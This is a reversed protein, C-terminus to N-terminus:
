ATGIAHLLREDGGHLRLKGRGARHPDPLDLELVVRFAPLRIHFVPAERLVAALLPREPANQQARLPSGRLKFGFKSKSHRGASLCPPKSKQREAEPPCPAPVAASVAPHALLLFLDNALRPQARLRTSALHWYWSASHALCCCRGAN